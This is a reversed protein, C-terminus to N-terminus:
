WHNEIGDLRGYLPHDWSLSFAFSMHGFRKQSGLWNPAYLRSFTQQVLEAELWHSFHDRCRERTAMREREWVILDCLDLLFRYTCRFVFLPLDFLVKQRDEIRQHRSSAENECCQLDWKIPHHHSEAHGPCGFLKWSSCGSIIDRVSCHSWLRLHSSTINILISMANMGSEITSSHRYWQPCHCRRSIFSIYIHWLQTSHDQSHGTRDRWLFHRVIDFSVHSFQDKEFTWIIQRLRSMDIVYGIETESNLFHKNSDNATELRHRWLWIMWRKIDRDALWRWWWPRLTGFLEFGSVTLHDHGAHNKVIQQLRVFRSEIV